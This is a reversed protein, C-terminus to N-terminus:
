RDVDPDPLDPLLLHAFIVRQRSPDPPLESWRRVMSGLEEMFRKYDNDNLHLSRMLGHVMLPDPTEPTSALYTRFTGELTNLFSTFNSLHEAATAGATDAHTINAKQRSVAYVKAPAGNVRIEEVTELVGAEALLRIHRYLSPVPVDSLLAAIQGTTLKRDLLATLIRARIPHTLLAVKETPM